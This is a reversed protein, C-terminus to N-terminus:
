KGSLKNKKLVRVRIWLVVTALLLIVTIAVVLWTNGAEYDSRYAATHMTSPSLYAVDNQFDLVTNFRKLVDMGLHGGLGQVSGDVVQVHVPMDRLELKGLSLKTMAMVANRITGEGVGTMRSTGLQKMSGHLHHKEASGQNLYLSLSSGTDLVLWEDFATPGTEMQAQVAPLTGMFQIPLATWQLARQPVANSIRLLMAEYDLEVVKGDFLNHGVIGDARDAQKEILLLSQRDWRLGGLTIRNNSSTGRTTVGGTGANETKGDVQVNANKARASPYLVVTDAGMDFLLDLPESDNIRGILHIKNDSGITFPITTEAPTKSDSENRSTERMASIRTRCRKGDLLVVFDYQKGPQVNFTISDIDTRFTVAHDGKIPRAHYVDLEVEPSVTWIGRLLRKGDQIDVTKTSARLVPLDDEALAQGSLTLLFLLAMGAFGRLPMTTLLGVKGRSPHIM